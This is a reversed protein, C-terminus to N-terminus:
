RRRCFNLTVLGFAVLLATNTGGDPVPAASPSSFTITGTTSIGTQFPFYGDWTFSCESFGFQGFSREGDFNFDTVCGNCVTLFSGLVSMSQEVVGNASHPDWNYLTGQLTNV